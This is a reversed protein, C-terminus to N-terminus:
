PGGAAIGRRYEGASVGHTRKFARNFAADSDYGVSNAVELLKRGPDRLLRTAKYMRWRTLYELPTEGVLQKFRMAFAARSMGGEAALEEVTWLRAMDGHMAGLVRGIQPDAVARLWHSACDQHKSMYFRIAQLFFVDTLRNVIIQSGPADHQIEAALLRITSQLASSQPEDAKVHITSPLLDVVPKAFSSDFTFCGTLMVTSRGDGGYRRSAELASSIESVDVLASDDDDRLSYAVGRPLVFCDGGALALEASGEVELWCHGRLVMGFSAHGAPFRLGWPAGFEFRGYLVSHVELATFVDSIPDM